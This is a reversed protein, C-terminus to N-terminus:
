GGQPSYTRLHCTSSSFRVNDIAVVRSSEFRDQITSQIEKLFKVLNPIIQSYNYKKRKMAAQHHTIHFHRLTRSVWPQSVEEHFSEGVFQIVDATQTLQRSEDGDFVWGAVVMREAESLKPPRGVDGTPPDYLTGEKAAKMWRYLTSRSPHNERKGLQHATTHKEDEEDKKM